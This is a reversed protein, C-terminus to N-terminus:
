LNSKVLWREVCFKQMIYGSFLSRNPSLLFSTYFYVDKTGPSKTAPKPKTQQTNDFIFM